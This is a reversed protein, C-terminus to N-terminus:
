DVILDFNGMESILGAHLDLLLERALRVADEKARVLSHRIPGTRTPIMQGRVCVKAYWWCKRTKSERTGTLCPFCHMTISGVSSYVTSRPGGQEWKMEKM